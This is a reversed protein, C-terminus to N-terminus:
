TRPTKIRKADPDDSDSLWSERPFSARPKTKKQESGRNETKLIGKVTKEVIAALDEHSLNLPEASANKVIVRPDHRDRIKEEQGPYLKELTLSCFEDFLSSPATEGDHKHQAGSQRSSNKKIAGGVAGREESSNRQLEKLKQDRRKREDRAQKRRTATEDIEKDFIKSEQEELEQIKKNLASINTKAPQLLEKEKSMAELIKEERTRVKSKETALGQREETDSTETLQEEIEKIEHECKDYEVRQRQIVDESQKLSIISSKLDSEAQYRNQKIEALVTTGTAEEEFGM